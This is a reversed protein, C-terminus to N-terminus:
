WTAALVNLGQFNPEIFKEGLAADSRASSSIADDCRAFNCDVPPARLDAVGHIRRIILDGHVTLAYPVVLKFILERQDQVFGGADNRRHAIFAASLGDRVQQRRVPPKKGNSTKISFRRSHQEARRIAHESSNEHM